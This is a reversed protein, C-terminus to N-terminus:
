FLDHFILHSVKIELKVDPLIKEDLTLVAASTTSSLRLEALELTGYLVEVQLSIFLCTFCGAFIM